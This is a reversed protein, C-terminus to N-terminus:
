STPSKTMVMYDSEELAGHTHAEASKADAKARADAFQDGSEPAKPVEDWLLTDVDAQELSPGSMLGDNRSPGFADVGRKEYMLRVPSDAETVASSASETVNSRASLSEDNQGPDDVLRTLTDYTPPASIVPAAPDAPPVVM